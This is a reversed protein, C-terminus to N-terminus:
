SLINSLIIAKRMHANVPTQDNAPVIVRIYMIIEYFRRKISQDLNFFKVRMFYKIELDLINYNM